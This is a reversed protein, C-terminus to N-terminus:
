EKKLWALYQRLDRNFIAVQVSAPLRACNLFGIRSSMPYEASSILDHRGRGSAATYRRLRAVDGNSLKLVALQFREPGEFPRPPADLLRLIEAPAHNPFLSKVKGEVVDRRFYPEKIAMEQEGQQPGIVSALGGQSARLRMVLGVAAGGVVLVIFALALSM